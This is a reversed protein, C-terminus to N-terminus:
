CAYVHVHFNYLHILNGYHMREDNVSVFQVAVEPIDFEDSIDKHVNINLLQEIAERDYNIMLVCVFGQKAMDVLMPIHKM